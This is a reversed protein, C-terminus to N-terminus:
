IKNTSTTSHRFTGHLPKLILLTEAENGLVTALINEHV